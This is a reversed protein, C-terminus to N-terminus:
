IDGYRGLIEPVESLHSIVHDLKIDTTNPIGGPDYWCTVLGCDFAGRMDSTLSDGVMMMEGPAVPALDSLVRDFFEKRPKEYGIDESIYIHDFIRDMGSKELKRAQAVKTGNSAACQIYKGKLSLLVDPAGDCFVVTDSLRYQYEDNFAEVISTDLGHNSFFETFRGTLIEHKTMKGAELLKWYRDNIASYDSIMADTCEGMGFIGFCRRIAAKESERFNLLTGDIDWLVAKIM